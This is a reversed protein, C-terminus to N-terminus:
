LIIAALEKQVAIRFSSFLFRFICLNKFNLVSEWFQERQIFFSKGHANAFIWMIVFIFNMKNRGKTQKQVLGRYRVNEEEIQKFYSANM